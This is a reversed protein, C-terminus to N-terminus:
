ASPTAEDRLQLTFESNAELTEVILVALAPNEPALIAAIQHSVTDDEAPAMHGHRIHQAGRRGQLLAQVQEIQAATAEVVLDSSMKKEDTLYRAQTPDHYAHPPVKRGKSPM